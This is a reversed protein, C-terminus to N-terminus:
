MGKAAKRLRNREEEAQKDKALCSHHYLLTKAPMNDDPPLKLESLLTYQIDLIDKESNDAFFTLPDPRAVHNVRNGCTRCKLDLKESIGHKYREECERIRMFMDFDTQEELIRMKDQLTEGERVWRAMRAHYEQEPSEDLLAYLESLSSIRPFDLDDYEMVIDDDDLTHVVTQANHVIENNETDCVELELGKLKMERETMTEADSGLYFARGNSEIMNIKRCEWRVLSPAKPYSNMRLWTMVYEFDGDTLIRADCSISMDVARIIHDIGNYTVHSGMHLLSLERVAFPRAYLKSVGHTQYPGFGTPLDGIDVYRHDNYIERPVGFKDTM